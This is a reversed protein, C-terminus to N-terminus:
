VHGMTSFNRELNATSCICACLRLEVSVLLDPFGSLRGAQWWSTPDGVQSFLNPHQVIKFPSNTGFVFRGVQRELRDVEITTAGFTLVTQKIKKTPPQSSAWMGKEQLAECTDAHERLRDVLGPLEKQCGNCRGWNYSKGAPKYKTFIKWVNDENRNRGPM